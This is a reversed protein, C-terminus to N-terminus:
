VWRAPRVKMVAPASISMRKGRHREHGDGDIGRAATFTALPYDLTTYSAGDYLYGHDGSSDTYVGIINNGDIGTASTPGTALPDDLSTFTTALTQEAAATVLLAALVLTLPIMRMPSRGQQQNKIPISIPATIRPVFRKM